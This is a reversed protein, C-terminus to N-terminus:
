ENSGGITEEWRSVILLIRIDGRTLKIRVPLEEKYELYEIVWALQYLTNQHKEFYVEPAPEGRVWYQLSEIPIVLGTHAQLLSAANDSEFRGQKPIDISAYQPADSSTGSNGKIRAISLGLTTSLYIDFSDRQQKWTINFSGNRQPAKLGVRGKLLWSESKAVLDGDSVGEFRSTSACGSLIFFM